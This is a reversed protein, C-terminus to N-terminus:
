PLHRDGDLVVDPRILPVSIQRRHGNVVVISARLRNRPRGSGLFAPSSDLMSVVARTSAGRVYRSLSATPSAKARRGGSCTRRSALQTVRSTPGAGQTESRASVTRLALHAM